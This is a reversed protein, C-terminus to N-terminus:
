CGEDQKEGLAAARRGVGEQKRDWKQDHDRSRHGDGRGGRMRVRRLLSGGVISRLTVAGDWKQNSDRDEEEKDEEEDGEEDQDEDEEDMGDEEDEDEEWGEAPAVLRGGGGGGEEVVDAGVVVGEV